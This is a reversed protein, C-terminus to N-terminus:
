RRKDVSRGRIGLLVLGDRAYVLDLRDKSTVSAFGTVVAACGDVESEREPVIRMRPHDQWFRRVEPLGLLNVKQGNWTGFQCRSCYYSILPDRRATDKRLHLLKGCGDCPITTHDFSFKYVRDGWELLSSLAARYSKADAFLKMCRSDNLRGCTPCRLRFVGLHRVFIGQLHQKGCWPCWLRTAKWDAGHEGLRVGFSALGEPFATVLVRRLALKGRQLRMAIAGESLGLRKAAEALSTERVFREILVQRTEETLLALARDLLVVLDQRGLEVELDFDDIPEPLRPAGMEEVGDDVSSSLPISLPERDRITRRLLNRAIAKLWAARRDPDRLQDRHQWARLLTEQALDEALDADGTLHQCFRVLRERDIWDHHPSFSETVLDM